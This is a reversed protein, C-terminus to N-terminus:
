TPKYISDLIRSREELHRLRSQELQRKPDLRSQNQNLEDTVSKLEQELRVIEQAKLKLQKEEEAGEIRFQSEMHSLKSRRFDSEKVWYNRESKAQEAVSTIKEAYDQLKSGLKAKEEELNATSESLLKMQEQIYQIYNSMDSKNKRLESLRTSLGNRKALQASKENQLEYLKEQMTSVLQSIADEYDGM